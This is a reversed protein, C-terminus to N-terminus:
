VTQSAARSPCLRAAQLDSCALCNPNRHSTAAECSSAASHRPCSRRRMFPFLSRSTERDPLHSTPDDTFIRL